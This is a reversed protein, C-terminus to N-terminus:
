ERELRKVLAGRVDETDFQAYIDATTQITKHGAFLQAHKLNVGPTRLLETVATHRGRHMNAGSTAGPEVLGARAVCRYWWSHGLSEGPEQDHWRRERHGYGVIKGHGLDLTEEAEELPVYCRRNSYRYLLYDDLALGLVQLEGVKLWFAEDPVPIYRVKGGKGKITIQRRDFDFHRLQLSRVEGKRLGYVCVLECGIRDAPYTQAALLEAVFSRSFLERPKQRARPHRIAVTPDGYILRERVAWGFFSRLHSLTKSRTRASRTGWHCDIFERLRETGVPPEFDKITLDAHDLALRGLSAEYDILTSKQAGWENAFWRLYRGVVAGLPTAQYSRDKVRAERMMRAADALTLKEATFFAAESM